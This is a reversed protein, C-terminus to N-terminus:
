SKEHWDLVHVRQSVLIDLEITERSVPAPIESSGARKFRHNDKDSSIDVSFLSIFSRRLCDVASLVIIRRIISDLLTDASFVLLPVTM